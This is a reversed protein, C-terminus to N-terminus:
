KEHSKPHTDSPKRIDNYVKEFTKAPSVGGHGTYGLGYVLGFVCGLYPVVLVIFTVKLWFPPQFWLLHFYALFISVFLFLSYLIGILTFSIKSYSTSGSKNSISSKSLISIQNMLIKVLAMTAGMIPVGYFICFLIVKVILDAM